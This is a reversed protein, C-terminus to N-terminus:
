NSLQCYGPYQINMVMVLFYLQKQINMFDLDSALYNVSSYYVRYLVGSGILVIATIIAAYKLLFRFQHKKKNKTVVNLVENWKEKKIEDSTYNGKGLSQIISYALYFYEKQEPYKDLLLKYYGGLDQCQTIVWNCFSSDELFDELNYEQFEKNM